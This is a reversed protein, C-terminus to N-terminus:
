ISLTLIQLFSQLQALCRHSAASISENGIQIALYMPQLIRRSLIKRRQVTTESKSLKKPQPETSSSELLEPLYEPHEQEEEGRGAEQFLSQSQHKELTYLLQSKIRLM